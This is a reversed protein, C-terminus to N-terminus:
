AAPAPPAAAAAALPDEAAAAAPEAPLLGESDSPPPCAKVPPAADAFPDVPPALPPACLLRFSSRPLSSSAPWVGLGRKLFSFREAFGRMAAVLPPPPPPPPPPTSLVGVPSPIPLELHARTQEAHSYFM